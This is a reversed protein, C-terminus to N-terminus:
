PLGRGFRLSDSVFEVEERKLEKQRKGGLQIGGM